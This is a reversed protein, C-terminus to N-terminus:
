LFGFDLFGQAVKALLSFDTSTGKIVSSFTGILICEAKVFMESLFTQLPKDSSQKFDVMQPMYM